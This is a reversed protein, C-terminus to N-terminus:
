FMWLLPAFMLVLFVIWVIVTTIRTVKDKTKVYQQIGTILLFLLLLLEFIIIVWWLAKYLPLPLFDVLRKVVLKEEPSYKAYIVKGEKIDRENILFEPAMPGDSIIRLEVYENPRWQSFHLSKNCLSVDANNDVVEISLVRKCNKLQFLLADEKITRNEFGNGYLTNEGINTIVFSSQWLHEVPISDDYFYTSSLHAVNLPRTLEIDSITKIELLTSKHRNSYWTIGLGVVTLFIMVIEAINRFKTNENM